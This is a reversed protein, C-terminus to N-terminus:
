YHAATGSSLVSGSNTSSCVVGWWMIVCDCSWVTVHCWWAPWCPSMAKIESGQSFREASLVFASLCTGEASQERNTHERHTCVALMHTNGIKNWATCACTDAFWTAEKVTAQYALCSLTYWFCMYGSRQINHKSYTPSTSSLTLETKQVEWHTQTNSARRTFTNANIDTQRLVYCKNPGLIWELRIVHKSPLGM